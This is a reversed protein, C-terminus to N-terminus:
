QGRSLLFGLSLIFGLAMALYGFAYARRNSRSMEGWGLTVINHGKSIVSIKAKLFSLFGAILLGVMSWFAVKPMARAISVSVLAGVGLVLPILALVYNFILEGKRM